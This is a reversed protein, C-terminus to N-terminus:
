DPPPLPVRHEAETATMGGRKRTVEFTYDDIYSTGMEQILDPGFPKFPASDRIVNMTVTKLLGASDGVVVVLDSVSGDSHVTFRIKVKGYRLGGQDNKTMESYWRPSITDHVYCRYTELPTTLVPAPDGLLPLGILAMAFLCIPKGRM